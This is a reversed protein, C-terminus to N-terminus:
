FLVGQQDFLDLQAGIDADGRQVKRLMEAKTRALYGALADVFGVGDFMFSATGFYDKCFVKAQEIEESVGAGKRILLPRM